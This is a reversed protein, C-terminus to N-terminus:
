GDSSRSEPSRASAINAASALHVAGADVHPALAASMADRWAQRQTDSIGALACGASTAEALELAQPIGGELVAVFERLHVQVDVFGVARLAAALEAADRGFTSPQQGEAALGMEAVIQRFLAFPSLTWLAIGLVGDPKLVRRMERLAAFPDAMHQLGQQCYVVDFTRDPLPLSAGPAEVYDLPAGGPEAPWTRGVSLMAASIDAGTVRGSPGVLRAAARAVTGPGTAVDLVAAGAPPPVVELLIAAWPAFIRPLHIRAYTAVTADQGFHPSRTQASSEAM